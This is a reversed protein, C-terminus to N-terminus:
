YLHLQLQDTSLIIDTRNWLRMAEEVTTLSKGLEINVLNHLKHGWLFYKEPSSFDPPHMAKLKSYNESCGCIGKPITTEWLEHWQPDCGLYSHKFAWSARGQQTIDKQGDLEQKLTSNGKESYTVTTTGVTGSILEITKVRINDDM